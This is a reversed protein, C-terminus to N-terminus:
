GCLRNYPLSWERGQLSCRLAAATLLNKQAKIPATLRYRTFHERRVQRAGDMSGRIATLAGGDKALAVRRRRGWRAAVMGFIGRCLLM